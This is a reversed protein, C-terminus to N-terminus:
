FAAKASLSVRNATFDFTDFNSARREIGYALGINLWRTVDFGLSVAGALTTDARKGSQLPVTDDVIDYSTTNPYANHGYRLDIRAALKPTLRHSLNADVATRLYYPNESFDSEQSARTLDIGLMTRPTLSHKLGAALTLYSGDETGLSANEKDYSKSQLGAKVFGTSKATVDWTLGLALQLASNDQATNSDYAYAAYSGEILGSIEPRFKWFVSTMVTSEVRDRQVSTDYSPAFRSGALELRLVDRIAYAVTANLTNADYDEGAGFEQTKALYLKEQKDAIKFSLGGPFDAGVAAGVFWDTSSVPDVDYGYHLFDLGATANLYFRQVPVLVRLSPAVSAVWASEANSSAKFVNDDRTATVGLVPYLLTPGLQIGDAAVAAAAPALLLCGALLGICRKNMM